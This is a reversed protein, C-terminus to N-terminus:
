QLNPMRRVGAKPAGAPLVRPISTTRQPTRDECCLPHIGLQSLGTGTHFWIVGGDPVAPTVREHLVHLLRDQEAGACRVEWDCRSVLPQASPNDEPCFGLGASAEADPSSMPSYAASRYDQKKGQGTGARHDHAPLMSSDIPRTSNMPVACRM